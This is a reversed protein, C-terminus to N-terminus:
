WAACETSRTTASRATRTARPSSWWRVTCRPGVGAIGVGNDGVGAVIGAGSTGHNDGSSMPLFEPDDDRDLADRGSVITAMLDPHAQECGNDVVAIATERTGTQIPWATEIQMRALYWQGGYRPDDPPVRIQWTSREVALGPVAATLLRGAVGDVSLRAALDAGDAVAAVDRVLWSRTAAFLPRVPALGLATFTLNADVGPRLHVIADTTVLGHFTRGRTDRLHLRSAPRGERDVTRDLREYTVRGARDSWSPLTIVQSPLIHTPQAAVTAGGVLVGLFVPISAVSVRSNVMIVNKM